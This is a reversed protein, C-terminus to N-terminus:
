DKIEIIRGPTWPAQNADLEANIAPVDENMIQKLSAIVPDLYKEAIQKVQKSTGTPDSFSSTGTYIATNVRNSLSPAQDIELQEKISDGFMAIQIKELKEELMDLKENLSASKVVRAAAQYYKLAEQLQNYTSRAGNASKSLKMLQQHFALMAAPDSIPV